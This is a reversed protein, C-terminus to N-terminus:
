IKHYGILFLVGEEQRILGLFLLECRIISGVPEWDEDFKKIEISGGANKLYKIYQTLKM